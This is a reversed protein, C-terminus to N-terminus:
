RKEGKRVYCWTPYYLCCLSDFGCDFCAQLSHSKHVLCQTYPFSVFSNAFIITNLRFLRGGWCSYLVHQCINVTKRDTKAINFIIKEVAATPRAIPRETKKQTRKQTIIGMAM